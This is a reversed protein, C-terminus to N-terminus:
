PQPDPNRYVPGQEGAKLNPSPSYSLLISNLNLLFCTIPEAADSLNEAATNTPAAVNAPVPLNAVVTENKLLTDLDGTLSKDTPSLKQAKQWEEPKLWYINGDPAYILLDSQDVSCEVRAEIRPFETDNNRPAAVVTVPKINDDLGSIQLVDPSPQSIGISGDNGEIRFNMKSTVNEPVNPSRSPVGWVSVQTSFGELLTVREPKFFFYVYPGAM